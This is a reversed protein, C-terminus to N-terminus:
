AAAGPPLRPAYPRRHRSTANSPSSSAPLTMPRLLRASWGVHRYETLAPDDPSAGQRVTQHRVINTWSFKHMFADSTRDGFLWRDQRAKNFKGFYRHVVWLIDAQERPQLHGVQLHAAM